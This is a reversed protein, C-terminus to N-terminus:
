LSGTLHDIIWMTLLSDVQMDELKVKLLEPKITNFALDFFSICITTNPRDLASHTGQLLCIIADDVTAYPQYAFQPLDQSPCVLPRLHVLLLRDMVKM